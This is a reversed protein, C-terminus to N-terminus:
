RRGCGKGTDEDRGKALSLLKCRGVATANGRQCSWWGGEDEHQQEMM